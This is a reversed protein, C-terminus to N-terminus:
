KEDRRFYAVHCGFVFGCPLALLRDLFRLADFHWPQWGRSYRSSADLNALLEVFKRDRLNLGAAVAKVPHRGAFAVAPARPIHAEVAEQMAEGGFANGAYLSALLFQLFRQIFYPALRFVELLQTAQAPLVRELVVAGDIEAADGGQAMLLAALVGGGLEQLLLIKVVTLVM